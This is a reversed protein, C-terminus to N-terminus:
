CSATTKFWGHSVSYGVIYGYEDSALAELQRPRYEERADTFPNMGFPYSGLHFCWDDEGDKMFRINRGSGDAWDAVDAVYGRAAMAETYEEQIESFPKTSRYFLFFYEAYGDDTGYHKESQQEM